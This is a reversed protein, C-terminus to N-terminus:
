ICMVRYVHLHCICSMKHDEQSDVKSIIGNGKRYTNTKTTPKDNKTYKTQMLKSIHVNTLTITNTSGYVSVM